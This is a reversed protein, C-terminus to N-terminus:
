LDVGERFLGSLSWRGVQDGHRNRVMGLQYLVVEGAFRVTLEARASDGIVTPSGASIEQSGLLPAYLENGFAREFVSLDGLKGRLKSSAYAYLTSVGEVGRGFGGELLTALLEEPSDTAQQPTAKV